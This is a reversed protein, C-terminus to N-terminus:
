WFLLFQYCMSLLSRSINSLFSSQFSITCENYLSLSVVRKVRFFSDQGHFPLTPCKVKIVIAVSLAFSSIRYGGVSLLRKMWEQYTPYLRRESFFKTSQNPNNESAKKMLEEIKGIIQRKEKSRTQQTALLAPMGASTSPIEGRLM